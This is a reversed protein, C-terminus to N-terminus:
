EPRLLESATVMKLGQDVAAACILPLAQRTAHSFDHLVIIAGPKLLGEVKQRIEDPKAEPRYDKPNASWYLAELGYRSLTDLQDLRLSGFPPRFWRPKPLGKAAFADLGRRLEEEFNEQDLLGLRPHSFSHHGIEHGEAAVRRALDPSTLVNQGIQFFTAKARFYKLVTLLEDTQGPLPGDDFTLAIKERLSSGRSFAGYGNFRAVVWASYQVPTLQRWM